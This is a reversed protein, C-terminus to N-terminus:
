DEIEVEEQLLANRGSLNFLARGSATPLNYIVQDLQPDTASLDKFFTGRQEPTLLVTARRSLSLASRFIEVYGRVEFDATEVLLRGNADQILIDPQLIFLSTDNGPITATFRAKGNGMQPVLDGPTNVGLVDIFTFTKSIDINPTVSTFVLDITVPNSRVNAITLFYGQIVTRGLKGIKDLVDPPISTGPPLNLENPKPLQPKVLLEFTSVLM